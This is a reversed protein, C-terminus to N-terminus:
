FSLACFFVVCLGLMFPFFNCVEVHSSKTAASIVPRLVSKFINSTSGRVDLATGEEILFTTLVSILVYDLEDNILDLGAELTNQCSVSHLPVGVLQPRAIQSAQWFRTVNGDGLFLCRYGM